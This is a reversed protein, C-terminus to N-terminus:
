QKNESVPKANTEGHDEIKAQVKSTICGKSLSKKSSSTVKIPDLNQLFVQVPDLFRM